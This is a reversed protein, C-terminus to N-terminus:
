RPEDPNPPPLTTPDNPRSPPDEAPQEPAPPPPDPKQVPEPPKVPKPHDIVVKTTPYAAPEAPKQPTPQTPQPQTQVAPTALIARPPVAKHDAPVITVPLDDKDKESAPRARRPEPRAAVPQAPQAGVEVDFALIVPASRGPAHAIVRLKQKGAQLALSAHYRDDSTAFSADHLKEAGKQPQLGVEVHAPGAAGTLAIALAVEGVSPAREFGARVTLGGESLVHEDVLPLPPAKMPPAPKQVVAPPPAPPPTQSRAAFLGLATGGAIAVAVGAVAARKRWSKSPSRRPPATEKVIKVKGTANVAAVPTGDTVGEPPLAEEIWALETQIADANVPRQVRDKALCALILNELQQPIAANLSRPSPPAERLHRLVVQMGATGEFPLRGTVTRFMIIGLSYLDARSDVEAGTAQEPAIYHPTGFIMGDRTLISEGAGDPQVIKAIGFDLVKVRDTKNGREYLLINAPKLDRHVIGGAHAEELASAIQRAVRVARPLPMAAGGDLVSELSVGDVYEMVLFPLKDDTEGVM